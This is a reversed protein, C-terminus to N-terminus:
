DGLMQCEPNLTKSVEKPGSLARWSSVDPDEGAETGSLASWLAWERPRVRTPSV